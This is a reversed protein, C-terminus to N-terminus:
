EGFFFFRGITNLISIFSFFSPLTRRILFHERLVAFFPSFYGLLFKLPSLRGSRTSSSFFSAPFRVEPAERMTDTSLSFPKGLSFVRLFIFRNWPTQRFFLPLYSRPPRGKGTRVTSFSLFSGEFPLGDVHLRSSPSHTLLPLFPSFRFFCAHRPV